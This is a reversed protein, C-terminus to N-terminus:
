PSPDSLSTHRTNVAALLGIIESSARFLQGASVTDSQSVIVSYRRVMEILEEVLPDGEGESSPLTHGTRPPPTTSPTDKSIPPSEESPVQQQNPLTDDHSTEMPVQTDLNTTNTESTEKSADVTNTDANDTDNKDGVRGASARTVRRTTIATSANTGAIDGDGKSSDSDLKGVSSARAAQDAADATSSADATNSDTNSTDNSSTTPPEQAGPIMAVAVVEMQEGSFLEQSLMEAGHSEVVSPTRDPLTTQSSYTHDHQVNSSAALAEQSDPSALTVVETTM